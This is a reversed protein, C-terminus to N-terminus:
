KITKRTNVYLQINLNEKDRRSGQIKSHGTPENFCLKFSNLM